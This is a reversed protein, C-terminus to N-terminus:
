ITGIRRKSLDQRFKERNEVARVQQLLDLLASDKPLDGCLVVDVITDVADPAREVSTYDVMLYGIRAIFCRDHYPPAAGKGYYGQTHPDATTFRRVEAIQMKGGPPLSLDEAYLKFDGGSRLRASTRESYSGFVIRSTLVYGKLGHFTYLNEFVQGEGIRKDLTAIELPAALPLTLDAQGLDISEWKLPMEIFHEGGDDEPGACAALAFLAAVAGCKAAVWTRNTM